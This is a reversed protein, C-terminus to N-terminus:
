AFSDYLSFVTLSHAIDDITWGEPIPCTVRFPEGPLVDFYNDSFVVDADDLSLEVFRALYKTEVEITVTDDASERLYAKLEPDRWKLHKNRVFTALQTSLIAEDEIRWLSVNGNKM